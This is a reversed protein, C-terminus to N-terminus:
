ALPPLYSAVIGAFIAAGVWNNHTFARFCGESSRARILFYHYGMMAAAARIVTTCTRSITSSPPSSGSAMTVGLM